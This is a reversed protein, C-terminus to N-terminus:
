GDIVRIIGIILVLAIVPFILFFVGVAEELRETFEGTTSDEGYSVWAAPQYELDGGAKPRLKPGIDHWEYDDARTMEHAPFGAKEWEAGAVTAAQPEGPSLFAYVSDGTGKDYYIRDARGANTLPATPATVTQNRESSNLPQAWTRTEEVTGWWNATTM